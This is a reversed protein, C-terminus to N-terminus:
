FIEAKTISQTLKVDWRVCFLDNRFREACGIEQSPVSSVFGLVAFALFV